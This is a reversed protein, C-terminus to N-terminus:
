KILFWCDDILYQIGYQSAIDYMEEANEDCLDKRLIVYIKWRVYEILDDVQYFDAIEYIQIYTELHTDKLERKYIFDKMILFLETDFNSIVCTNSKKEIMDITFMKEFVVSASSMISKHVKIEKKNVIFSFDHEQSLLEEPYNHQKIEVPNPIPKM